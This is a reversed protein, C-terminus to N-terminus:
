EVVKLANISKSMRVYEEVCFCPEMEFYLTSNTGEECTRLNALFACAFLWDPPNTKHASMAECDFAYPFMQELRGFMWEVPVRVASLAACQGVSIGHKERQAETPINIVVDDVPTFAGDGLVVFGLSKLLQVLALDILCKDNNHGGHPGDLLMIIGCPSGIACYLYNHDRTYGSYTCAQVTLNSSRPMPVRLGDVMCNIDGQLMLPLEVGGRVEVIEATKKRVAAVQAGRKPVFKAMAKRSLARNGLDALVGLAYQNYKRLTSEDVDVLLEFGVMTKYMGHVRALFTMLVFEGEVPAMKDLYVVKDFILAAVKILLIRPYGFVDEFHDERRRMYEFASTVNHFRPVRTNRAVRPIDPVYLVARLNKETDAKTKTHQSVV